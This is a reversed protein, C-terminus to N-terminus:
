IPSIKSTLLKELHSLDHALYDAGAEILEKESSTGWLVGFTTLGAAKGCGIDFLSDGVFASGEAKIGMKELAYLAPGPEPKHGCDDSATVVAEFFDMIELGLLTSDAGKLSKSTVIGMTYGKAKLNELMFRVGEFLRLAQPKFALYHKRYAEYYKEGQGEGLLIEGTTILPLGILSMIKEEDWLINLENCTLKSTEIIFPVSDILTGDMDFLIAAM